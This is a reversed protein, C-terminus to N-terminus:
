PEASIEYGQITGSIMLNGSTTIKLSRNEANSIFATVYNCVADYNTGSEFNAKYLINGAANTEDFITLTIAALSNNRINLIFDTVIYRKGSAPTWIITNTQSSTYSFDKRVPIKGSKDGIRTKFNTEFDVVNEGGDKHLLCELLFRGDVVQLCYADGIDIHQISVQKENVFTKLVDWSVQM